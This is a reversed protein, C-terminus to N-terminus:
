FAGGGTPQTIAACEYVYALPYQRVLPLNFLIEGLSALPLMVSSKGPGAFLRPLAYEKTPLM